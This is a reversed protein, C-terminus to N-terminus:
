AGLVRLIAAGVVGSILVLVVGVGTAKAKWNELTALRGNVLELALNLATAQTTKYDDFKEATVSSAQVQLIRRNEGNLSKLRREYERAQLARAREAGRQREDMRLILDHDSLMGKRARTM